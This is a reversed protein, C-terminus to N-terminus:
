QGGTSAKGNSVECILENNESSLVKRSASYAMGKCEDVVEAWDNYVTSNPGAPLKAMCRDYAEMYDCRNATTRADGCGAVAVAILLYKWM